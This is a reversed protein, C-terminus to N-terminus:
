VEFIGAEAASTLSGGRATSEWSKLLVGVRDDRGFVSRGFPFYPQTSPDRYKTRHWAADPLEVWAGM